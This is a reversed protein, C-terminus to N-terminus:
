PTIEWVVGCGSSGCVNGGTMGGAYATGYLNGNGDLVLQGYPFAGDSGGAFDHLVTYDGAPTLKFVSGLNYKGDENTTGYLNGLADMVLGAQPGLSGSFSHLVNLQWGYSPPKLEYATGAGGSGGAWNTGWLNGASDFILNGFAGYGETAPVFDHVVNLTWNQGSLTLQFATGGSNLGGYRTVGYLNGAADFIVGTWCSGGDLDGTFSHLINQTWGGNAPTLEYINGYEPYKGGYTTTGYLNGAQDFALAGFAPNAGDDAGTFRYLVTESWPCLATKCATAAPRLSYVTGCGDLDCGNGGGYFTTSYLVGDPGIALPADPSWGDSGGTFEYLTNFIWGSGKRSMKFATGCSAGFACQVLGGYSAAGYLSGARDMSLGAGIPGAGDAGGTFTHLVNFTQAQASQTVVAMPVFVIALAALAVRWSQNQPKPCKM